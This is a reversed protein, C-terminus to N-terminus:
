EEIMPIQSIINREFEEYFLIEAPDDFEMELMSDLYDLINSLQKETLQIKYNM